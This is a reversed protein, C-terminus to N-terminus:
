RPAVSGDPRTKEQLASIKRSAFITICRATACVAMGSFATLLLATRNEATIKILVEPAVTLVAGWSTGLCILRVGEWLEINQGVTDKM